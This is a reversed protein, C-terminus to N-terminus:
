SEVFNQLQQFQWTLKDPNKYKPLESIFVDLVHKASHQVALVKTDFFPGLLSPASGGIKKGGDARAACVYRYGSVYGNVTEAISIIYYFAGPKYDNILYNQPNTCIGFENFIFKTKIM